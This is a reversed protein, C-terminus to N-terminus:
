IRSSMNGHSHTDGWILPDVGNKSDIRICYQLLFIEDALFLLESPPGNEQFLKESVPSIFSWLYSDQLEKPCRALEM